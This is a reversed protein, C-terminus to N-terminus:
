RRARLAPWSGPFGGPSFAGRRRQRRRPVPRPARHEPAVTRPSSKLTRTRPSFTCPPPACADPQVAVVATGPFAPLRPALATMVIVPTRPAFHKIEDLLDIARTDPLASDLVIADFGDGRTVALVAERGTAAEEVDYGEDVFTKRLSLRIAREDDVILVRRTHRVASALLM